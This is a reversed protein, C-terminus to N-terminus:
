MPPDVYSRAGFWRGESPTGMDAMDMGSAGADAHM